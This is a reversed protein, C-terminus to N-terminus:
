TSQQMWDPSDAGSPAAIFSPAEWKKSEGNYHDVYLNCSERAAVECNGASAGHAAGDGLIGKAVFYVYSGDESAGLVTGQMEAGETLRTVTGVLPEGEGSTVEFM